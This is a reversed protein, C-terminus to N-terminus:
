ENKKANQRKACLSMKRAYQYVTETQEPDCLDVEGEQAGTNAIACGCLLALVIKIMEVRMGPVPNEQSPEAIRISEGGPRRM